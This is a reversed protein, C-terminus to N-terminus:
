TNPKATSRNPPPTEEAMTRFYREAAAAADDVYFFSEEGLSFETIDGAGKEANCVFALWSEGITDPAVPEFTVLLDSETDSSTTVDNSDYNIWSKVASTQGACDYYDLVKDYKWGESQQQKFTSRWAKLYRSGKVTVPAVSTRDLFTVTEGGNGTSVFWWEAANAATATAVAFVAAMMLVRM